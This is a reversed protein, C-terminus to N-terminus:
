VCDFVDEREKLESASVFHQDRAFPKLPPESPVCGKKGIYLPWKPNLLAEQIEMLRDPSAGVYVEYKEGCEYQVKKIINKGGASRNDVVQFDTIVHPPAYRNKNKGRNGADRIVRRYKLDCINLMEGLRPDKRPIGLASGMFGVMARRTPVTETPYFEKATFNDKKAFYMVPASLTFKLYLDYKYM